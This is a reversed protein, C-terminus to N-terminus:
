EDIKVFKCSKVFKGRFEAFISSAFIEWQVINLLNQKSGRKMKKIFIM